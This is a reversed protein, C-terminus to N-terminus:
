KDIETFLEDIVDQAAKQKKENKKPLVRSATGVWAVANTSNDVIHMTLSGEKYKNVPVEKSEWTYSRQGSYMFPDTALSTTRTQVKDEVIIGLNIKLDPNDSSRSLGRQNMANTIESELFSINAEFDPSQEDMGEIGYFDYTKFQSLDFDAYADSVKSPASCASIILLCIATILNLRKM